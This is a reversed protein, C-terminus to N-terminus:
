KCTIKMSKKMFYVSTPKLKCLFPIPFPNDLTLSVKASFKWSCIDTRCWLIHIKLVPRELKLAPQAFYLSFYMIHWIGILINFSCAIEFELKCFKFILWWFPASLSTLSSNHILSVYCNYFKPNEASSIVALFTDTNPTTRTPIKGWESQIRLSVSYRETHLGFAPFHPGSYRWICVIKAWHIM